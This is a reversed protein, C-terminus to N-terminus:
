SKKEEEPKLAEVLHAWEKRGDIHWDKPPEWPKHYPAAYEVRVKPRLKGPPPMFDADSRLAELVSAQVTELPLDSLAAWYVALMPKTVEQRYALALTGIAEAFARKDEPDRM